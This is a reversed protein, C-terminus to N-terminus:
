TIYFHVLFENNLKTGGLLNNLKSLGNFAAKWVIYDTEQELYKILNFTIKINLLDAQALNFADDILQARNLPHIRTFNRKM